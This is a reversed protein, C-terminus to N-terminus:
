EKTPKTQTESVRANRVLNEIDERKYRFRRPLVEVPHIAADKAWRRFTTRGVGLFRAAAAGTLFPPGTLPRDGRLIKLAAALTRKDATMAATLFESPVNAM